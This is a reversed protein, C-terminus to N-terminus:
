QKQVEQCENLLKQLKEADAHEEVQRYTAIGRKWARIALKIKGARKFCLAAEHYYRGALEYEGLERFGHAAFHFHGGANEVTRALKYIEAALVSFWASKYRQRTNRGWALNARFSYGGAAALFKPNLASIIVDQDSANRIKEEFARIKKRHKDYYRHQLIKPNMPRLAPLIKWFTDGLFFIVTLVSSM